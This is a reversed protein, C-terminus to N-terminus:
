QVAVRDGRLAVEPTVSCAVKAPIVGAAVGVLISGGQAAALASLPLAVPWGNLSAIGCVAGLGALAGIGGGIGSLLASEGVFQLFVDRRAAGVARRVGIEIAREKISMLAVAVISMVGVVLAVWGARGLVVAFGRATEAELRRPDVPSEITFPTAEGEGTRHRVRMLKLVGRKTSEAQRSDWPELAIADLNNRGALRTMAARLPVLIVPADDKAPQLPLACTEVVGIVQTPVGNLWVSAGVIASGLDLEQGVVSDVLALRQVGQSERESWVRGSALVCSGMQFYSSDVGVLTVESSEGEAKVTATAMLVGSARRVLASLRIGEVDSPTLSTARTERLWANRHAVREPRLVLSGGQSRELEVAVAKEASQIVGTMVVLAAVGGVVSIM